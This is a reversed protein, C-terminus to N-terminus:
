AIPVIDKDPVGAGNIIGAVFLKLISQIIEPKLITGGEM